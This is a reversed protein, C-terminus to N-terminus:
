YFSKTISKPPCKIVFALSMSFCHYTTVNKSYTMTTRPCRGGFIVCVNKIEFVIRIDLRMGIVDERFIRCYKRSRNKILKYEMTDIFIFVYIIPLIFKFIDLKTNQEVCIHAQTLSNKDSIDYFIIFYCQLFFLFPFFKFQFVVFLLSFDFQFFIFCHFKTYCQHFLFVLKIFSCFFSIFALFIRFIPRIKRCFVDYILTFM